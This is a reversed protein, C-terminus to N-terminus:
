TRWWGEWWTDRPFYRRRLVSPTAWWDGSVCEFSVLCLHLSTHFIWLPYSRWHFGIWSCGVEMKALFHRFSSWPRWQFLLRLHNSRFRYTYCSVSLSFWLHCWYSNWRQSPDDFNWCACCVAHNWLLGFLSRHCIFLRLWESQALCLM